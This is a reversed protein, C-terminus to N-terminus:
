WREWIKAPMVTRMISWHGLASQEHWGVLKATNNKLLLSSDDGGLVESELVEEKPMLFHQRASSDLFDEEVAGRFTIEEATKRCFIVLNTFDSGWKEVNEEVRPSERFIRCSPFVQKITRYILKPAPLSFDGAYNKSVTLYFSILFDPQVLL